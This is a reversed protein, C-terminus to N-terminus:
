QHLRNVLQRPQLATLAESSDCMDLSYLIGLCCEQVFWLLADAYLSRAPKDGGGEEMGNGCEMGNGGDGIAREEGEKSWVLV